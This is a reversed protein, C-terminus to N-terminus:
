RVEVHCLSCWKKTKYAEVKPPLETSIHRSSIVGTALKKKQELQQDYRRSSEDHQHHLIHLSPNHFWSAYIYIYVKLQIKRGLEETSTLLATNRAMLKRERERYVFCWAIWAACRLTLKALLVNNACVIYKHAAYVCCTHLCFMHLCMINIICCTYLMGARCPTEFYTSHQAQTHRKRQQKGM